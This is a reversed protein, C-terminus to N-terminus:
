ANPRKGHWANGTVIKQVQGRSIGFQDALMQQTTHGSAYAERIKVVDKLQLKASPHKEHRVIASGNRARKRRVMDAMNTEQNGLYLHKVNVCLRNDCKHCVMMGDPIPGYHESWVIRHTYRNKSDVLVRGYGKHNVCGTWFLCEGMPETRKLIRDLVSTM